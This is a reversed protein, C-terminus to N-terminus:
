GCRFGWTGGHVGVVQAGVECPVVVSVADMGEPQRRVAPERLRPESGSDLRRGSCSPPELM